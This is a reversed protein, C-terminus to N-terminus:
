TTDRVWLEAISTLELPSLLMECVRFFCREEKTIHRELLQQYEEFIRNFKNEDAQAQPSKMFHLLSHLTQHEELPIDLPSKQDKFTKQRELWELDKGTIEKALDAPRNQLHEDFYLVCYPGGQSLNKKPLLASFLFTEEKRHHKDETELILWDLINKRETTTKCAQLVEVIKEHEKQIIQFLPHKVELPKQLCM